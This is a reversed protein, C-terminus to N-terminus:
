QYCNILIIQYQLNLQVVRREEALYDVLFLLADTYFVVDNHKVPLNTDHEAKTEEEGLHIYM